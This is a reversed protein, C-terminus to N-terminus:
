LRLEIFPDLFALNLEMHLNDILILNNFFFWFRLIYCALSLWVQVNSSERSMDRVRFM